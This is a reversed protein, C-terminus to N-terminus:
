CAAHREKGGGESLWRKVYEACQESHSLFPAHGAGKVLRSHVGPFQRIVDVPVLTDREGLLWFMPVVPNEMVDRMDAEQLFKLGTRLAGAQPQPRQKLEARLQRLTEGSRDASRAQLSLFRLLTKAVDAELQQAFQDFVERDVAPEWDACAVFKPTTALLLVGRVPKDARGAAALSVLGGLSWGLWWANAPVVDLVAAAWDDLERQGRFASNGHGPLDVCHVRFCKCLRGAWESWIGSHMGWGHVLVLDPGAGSVDVHLM